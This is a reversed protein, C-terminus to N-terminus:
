KVIELGLAGAAEAAVEEPRKGTVYWNSDDDGNENENENEDEKKKRLVGFGASRAAREV